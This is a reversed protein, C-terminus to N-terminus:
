AIKQRLLLSATSVLIIFFLQNIAQHSAESTCMGGDESCHYGPACCYSLNCCTSYKCCFYTGATDGTGCCHPTDPAGPYQYGCLHHCSRDDSYALIPAVVTDTHSYITQRLSQKRGDTTCIFAIFMLLTVEYLLKM